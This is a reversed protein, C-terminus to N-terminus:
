PNSPQDNKHALIKFDLERHEKRPINESQQLRLSNDVSLAEDDEPEFNYFGDYMDEDKAGVSRARASVDNSEDRHGPSREGVKEGHKQLGGVEAVPGM